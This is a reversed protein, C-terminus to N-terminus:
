GTGIAHIRYKFSLSIEFNFSIQWEITFMKISICKLSEFNNTTKAIPQTPNKAVLVNDRTDLRERM